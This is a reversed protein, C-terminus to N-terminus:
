FRFMRFDSAIINLLVISMLIWVHLYSQINSKSSSNNLIMVVKTKAQYYLKIFHCFIFFSLFSFYWFYWKYIFQFLPLEFLYILDWNIVSCHLVSTFIEKLPEKMSKIKRDFEKEWNKERGRRRDKM